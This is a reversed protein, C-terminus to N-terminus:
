AVQDLIKMCAGTGTHQYCDKHVHLLHQPNACAKCDNEHNTSFIFFKVVDGTACYYSCEACKLQHNHKGCEPCPKYVM